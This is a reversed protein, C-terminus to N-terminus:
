RTPTAAPARTADQRAGGDAGHAVRVRLGHHDSGPLDIAEAGGLALGRVLAHDIGIGCPGFWSPWTAAAGDHPPLMGAARLAAIGPDAPSANLDGLILLPGPETEALAALELLQQSNWAAHMPRTPSQTHILIVRLTGGPAEIRADLGYAEALELEKARMPFRSLLACGGAGFPQAWRQQPWRPDGALLARDDRRTEILGVLDGDLRAIAEGHRLSHVYLNATVATFGGHPAPARAAYAALLTPWLAAGALLLMGLGALPRRGQWCWFPLSLVALQPAWHRALGAVWWGTPALAALLLGAVPAAALALLALRGTKM